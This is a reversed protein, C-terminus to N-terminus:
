RAELDLVVKVDDDHRAFAERFNALPVRRTILRTLWDVDAAALATAAAAYHRRNANVSGFIVGNRLVVNRNIGGLDVSVPEGPRSVGTLCTIADPGGNTIVDLIVSPVGTCELLVDAQVKSDPVTDHHYTAGLAAVLDPKLGTSMRDYVHVELGRQVGLLAALLGIPGAGTVVAVRPDYFARAGIRDIQEWAKAVVTAPELLVGVTALSADLAVMAEPQGRWLERAFGDLAMIGHETYRGNLCMDWEGVACAACPVPDPRRVIGVVLEGASLGCGEPASRVRGLNEHGLVLVDHGPPAAGYGGSVIEMDTGCLGVALGEVLVAGEAPAPEDFAQLSL